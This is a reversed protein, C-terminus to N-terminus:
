VDSAIHSIQRDFSLKTRLFPSCGHLSRSFLILREWIQRSRGMPDKQPPGLHRKLSRCSKCSANQFHQIHYGQYQSAPLENLHHFLQSCLTAKQWGCAPDRIGTPADTRSCIALPQKWPRPGPWPGHYMAGLGEAWVRSGEEVVFMVLWKWSATRKGAQHILRPTGATWIELSNAPTFTEVYRLTIITPPNVTIISETHPPGTLFGM